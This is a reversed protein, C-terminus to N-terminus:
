KMYKGINVFTVGDNPKLEYEKIDCNRGYKKPLDTYTHFVTLIYEGIKQPNPKVDLVIGTHGAVAHSRNSVGPGPKDPAISYVAPASPINSIELDPSLLAINEVKQWGNGTTRGLTTYTDIFWNTADVCQLGEYNDFDGYVDSDPHKATAFAEKIKEHDMLDVAYPMDPSRQTKLYDAIVWGTKNGYKVEAWEIGDVPKKNGTFEVSQGYDITAKTHSRFGPVARMSITKEGVYRTGGNNESQPVNESTAEPKKLNLCDAVVWGTKDGYKIEAWADGKSDPKKKGTFEVETGKKLKGIISNSTGAESRVNLGIDANVYRKNSETTQTQQSIGEALSVGVDESYAIKRAQKAANHNGAEAAAYFM